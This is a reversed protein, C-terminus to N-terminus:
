SFKLIKITIFRQYKDLICWILTFITETMIIDAYLISVQSIEVENVHLVTLIMLWRLSLKWASRGGGGWTAWCSSRIAASSLSSYKQDLLGM